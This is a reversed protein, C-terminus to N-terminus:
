TQTRKLIGGGSYRVHSSAGDTLAALSRFRLREMWQIPAKHRFAPRFMISYILTLIPAKINPTISSTAAAGYIDSSPEETVLWMWGIKRNSSAWGLWRFFQRVTLISTRSTSTQSNSIPGDGDFCYDCASRLCRTRVEWETNLRNLFDMLSEDAHQRSSSDLPVYGDRHISLRRLSGDLLHSAIDKVTRKSSGTPLAWETLTLSRLLRLLHSSIEPFLDAVLIPPLQSNPKPM